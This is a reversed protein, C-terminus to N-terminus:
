SIGRFFRAMRSKKQASTLKLGIVTGERLRTARTIGGGWALLGPDGISKTPPNRHRWAEAGLHTVLRVLIELVAKIM